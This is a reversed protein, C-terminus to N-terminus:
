GQPLYLRPLFVWLESTAYHNAYNNPNNNTYNNASYHPNNNTYNNTSYNSNNDPSHNNTDNYAHHHFIYVSM